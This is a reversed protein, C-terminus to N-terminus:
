TGPKLRYKEIRVKGITTTDVLPISNRFEDIWDKNDQGNTESEVILFRNWDCGKKPETYRMYGPVYTEKPSKPYNAYECPIFGYKKRGYWWFLYQYPYDYFTDTYTYVNFGDNDSHTYIWDIIAGENYLMSADPSYEMHTQYRNIFHFLNSGIVLLLIIRRIIPKFDLVMLAFGIFLLPSLYVIHWSRYGHNSSFFIFSVILLIFTLYIFVKSKKNRRKSVLWGYVVAAYLFIGAYFHLPFVVNAILESFVRSMEQFNTSAFVGLGHGSGAGHIFHLVTFFYYAVGLIAVGPLIAGIIFFSTLSLKKKFVLWIGLGLFILLFVAAGALDLNFALLVSILAFIYYKRGKEIEVSLTLFIVLSLCTIVLPFPNFSWLATEFFPWFFSLSGGILLAYYDGIRKRLFLVAIAIVVLNLLIMLYVPGIPNSNFTLFGIAIFYYWLPATYVGRISTEPGRVIFRPNDLLDRIRVADNGQDVTFHFNAPYIAYIHIFAFIILLLVLLTWFLKQM